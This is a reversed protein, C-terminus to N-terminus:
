AQATPVPAPQSVERRATSVALSTRTVADALIQRQRDEFRTRLRPSVIRAMRSTLNYAAIIPTILLLPSPAPLGFKKRQAGYAIGAIEAHFRRVARQVVAAIPGGTPLGYVGTVADLTAQTLARTHEDSGADTLMILYALRGLGTLTDMQLEPALGMLHSQYRWLHLVAKLDAPSGIAGFAVLSISGAFIPVWGAATQAQGAPVDFKDEDWGGMTRAGARAYGHILRVRVTAKFGNGYRDMGGPEGCSFMWKAAEILRGASANEIGGARALLENGGRENLFSAPLTVALAGLFSLRVPTNRLAQQARQIKRFDVWYPTSEADEIFAVLEPLPDEVSALGHELADEFQKRGVGKPLRSMAEVLDDALPDGRLTYRRFTSLQAETPRAGVADLLAMLPESPMQRRNGVPTELATTHSM